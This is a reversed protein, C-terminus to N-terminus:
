RAAIKSKSLFNIMKFKWKPPMEHKIFWGILILYFFDGFNNNSIERAKKRAAIKSKSLFNSM